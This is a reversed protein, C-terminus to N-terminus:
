LTSHLSQVGMKVNVANCDSGDQSPKNTIENLEGLFIFNHIERCAKLAASNM